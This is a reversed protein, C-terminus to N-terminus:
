FDNTFTTRSRISEYDNDDDNDCDDNDDDDNEEDGPAIGMEIDDNENNTNNNRKILFIAIIMTIVSVVVIVVIIIFYFVQNQQNKTTTTTKIPTSTPTSAPASTPTSTPTKQEIKAAIETSSYVTTPYRLHRRSGVSAGASDNTVIASESDYSPKTTSPTTSTNHVVRDDYVAGRLQSLESFINSPNPLHNIIGLYGRLTVLKFVFYITPFIKFFSFIIKKM